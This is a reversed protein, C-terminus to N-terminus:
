DEDDLFDDEATENDLTSPDYQSDVKIKALYFVRRNKATSKDQANKIRQSGSLLFYDQYWYKMDPFEDRKVKDGARQTQLKGLNKEVFSNDKAIIMSKLNLGSPYFLRIENETALGRINQRVYYPRNPIELEFCHDWLKNGQKDLGLVTAHTYQYGDFVQRTTTQPTGNVYSTMVETRYTPYYAEGLVVYQGGFESIKHTTMHVRVANEKGKEKKKAVQKEAKAKRKKSLYQFFNPMDAFNHYRIFVQRGNRFAALFLGNSLMSGDTSYNGSILFEDKNMWTIDADLTYRNLENEIIIPSGLKNGKVNFLAIEFVWKRLDRKPGHQVSIAVVQQQHDVAIDKIRTNKGGGPLMLLKSTGSALDLTAVVPKKKLM